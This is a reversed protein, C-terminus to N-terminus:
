ALALVPSADCSEDVLRLRLLSGRRRVSNYISNARFIRVFETLEKKEHGLKTKGNTPSDRVKEHRGGEVRMGQSFGRDQNYKSMSRSGDTGRGM